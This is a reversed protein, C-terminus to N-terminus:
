TLRLTFTVTGAGRHSAFAIRRCDTIPAGGAPATRPGPARPPINGTELSTAVFIAEFAM